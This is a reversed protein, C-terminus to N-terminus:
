NKREPVSVVLSGTQGFNHNLRELDFQKVDVPVNKKIERTSVSGDELTDEHRASISVMGSVEDVGVVVEDPSFAETNVTFEFKKEESESESQDMDEANEKAPEPAAEIIVEHSEPVEKTEEPKHELQEQKKPARISLKGDAGFTSKMEELVCNEPLLFSREFSESSSFGTEESKEEKTGKITLVNTKEDVQVKVNNPDFGSLDLSTEFADKKDSVVNPKGVVPRCHLPRSRAVRRCGHPRELLHGPHFFPHHFRQQRFPVPELFELEFPRIYLAM